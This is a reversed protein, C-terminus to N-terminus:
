ARNSGDRARGCITNRGVPVSPVIVSNNRSGETGDSDHYYSVERGFDFTQGTEDNILAFNFYIWDNDLDAHAGVEVNKIARGDLEFTPTVFAAESNKGALLCLSRQFCKAIRIDSLTFVILLAVLAVNLWLWTRWASGVKGGYPSPQNAFIGNRTLRRAPCSSLKGSKRDRGISASRGPSKATRDARRFAHLAARRFGRM